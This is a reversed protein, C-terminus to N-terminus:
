GVILDKASKFFALINSGFTSANSTSQLIDLADHINTQTGSPSVITYTPQETQCMVINKQLSNLYKEAADMGAVMCQTANLIEEVEMKFSSSSSEFSMSSSVSSRDDSEVLSMKDTDSM